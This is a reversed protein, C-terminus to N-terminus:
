QAPGDPRGSLRAARRLALMGYLSNEGFRNRIVQQAEAIAARAESVRGRSVLEDSIVLKAVAYRWAEATEDEHNRKLQARAKALFESGARANGSAFEVAAQNLQVQDLMGFHETRAAIAAARALKERADGLRGHFSDIMALSNLPPILEDHFKGLAKETTNLIELFMPKAGDVDGAILRYRARNNRLTAYEDHDFTYLKKYLPVSLDAIRIAEAYSGGEYLAFSYNSMIEATLPHDGLAARSITLADKLAAQSAPYEGTDILASGLTGLTAALAAETEPTVPDRARDAILAENSLAVAEALAETTGVEILNQSLFNLAQSRLPSSPALRERSLKLAERLTADADAYNGLRFEIYGAVLLTKIRSEDSVDSRGTTDASQEKRARDALEDATQYDGLGSYAQAIATLLEARVSPSGASFRDIKQRGIELVDLASLKKGRNNAPDANEFLSVMFNKTGEATALAAHETRLANEARAQNAEAMNRASRAMDRDASARWWAISALITLALISGAAGRRLLTKRASRAHSRSAYDEVDGPPVLAAERVEVIVALKEPEAGLWASQRDHALWLRADRIVEDRKRLLTREDGLWKEARPWSRILAEHALSVVPGDGRLEDNTVCLRRAVMKELLACPASGKAFRSMPPYRRTAVGDEGIGVLERMVFRFADDGHGSVVEDAVSVLASKLGGEYAKWLLVRGNSRRFIETLTFELLPLVEPNSVAEELLEQDLSVGDKKEWVLGAARAPERVIDALEAPRPPLLTVAGQPGICDVLDPWAHLRHQFESRMSATVWISGSRSLAVMAGILASASATAEADAFIEELQDIYLLLRVRGRLSEETGSVLADEIREAASAPNALLLAALKEASGAVRSNAPLIKCLALALPGLAGAQPMNPASEAPHCSVVTWRAIGEVPRLEMFPLVGANFLSSKGSGSMGQVLLMRAGGDKAAERARFRELISSIAQSRGFFIAQHEATFAELGLFPSGDKWQLRPANVQPGAIQRELWERVHTSVKREFDIPSEFSHHAITIAGAEDFFARRCFDSLREFQREREHYGAAGLTLRPGPERRYILLNPKGISRFARLADKIEFETGTPSPEGPAPKYNAPLRTGLRSWLVTIVLDCSSPLELQDQFGAHGFVPEHEWDIVELQASEAFERELRKVVRHAHAREESVDGPSSLFIRYRPIDAM